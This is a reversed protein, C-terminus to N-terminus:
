RSLDRGPVGDLIGGPGDQRAANEESAKLAAHLALRWAAWAAPNHRPDGPIRGELALWARAELAYADAVPDPSPPTSVSRSQYPAAADDTRHRVYRLNRAM